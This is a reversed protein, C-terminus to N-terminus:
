APISLDPLVEQLAELTVPKTLHHDFGADKSQLRDQPGGWGTLAVLRIGALAPEARLARAVDHGSMDPLGIDLLAIEPRFARALEIAAAGTHAVRLAHGGLELLTSLTLAADENDDLILIRKSGSGAVPAATAQSPEGPQVHALPLRVIFTSGRGLGASQADLSGGHMEVLRRAISLGIGIGGKRQARADHAQAFLDFINPLVAPDIGIGDDSVRILVDHGDREIVVRLHGGDPTYKAA